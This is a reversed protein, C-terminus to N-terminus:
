KSILPVYTRRCDRSWYYSADVSSGDKATAHWTIFVCEIPSVVEVSGNTGNRNMYTSYVPGSATVTASTTVIPKSSNWNLIYSTAIVPTGCALLLFCLLGLLLARHTKNM